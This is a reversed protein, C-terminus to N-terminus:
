MEYRSSDANFLVFPCFLECNWSGAAGGPLVPNRSDKTWVYQAQACNDCLIWCAVLMLVILAFTKM